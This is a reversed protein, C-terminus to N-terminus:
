PLIALSELLDHKSETVYLHRGEPSVTLAVIGPKSVDAGVTLRASARLSVAGTAVDRSYGAVVNDFASGTYVHAGDDSIAVATPRALGDLAAFVHRRVSALTLSGTGSDRAFVVLARGLSGAVYVQAGDPSVALARAGDLGEVGGLGNKEREVFTLAGTAADRAFVAVADDGFSAIYLHAGDPSMALAYPGLLGDVGDTLNKEREVFTLMGTAADRSFAAIANSPDAAVYVHLGDPSVVVARAGNMSDQVAAGNKKRQVFTLAGTAANRAFVAVADDRSSAVYVHAGDPSLAVARAGNLGDAGDIADTHVELTTLAGTTTDRQFVSLSDDNFSAVYVHAGDASLAVARGGDLGPAGGDVHFKADVLTIGGDDADPCFSSRFQRGAYAVLEQARPLEFLLLSEARCTHQRAVCTEYDALSDLTPVGYAECEPVIADLNAAHAVRLTAFPVVAESCSRDIARRLAAEGAALRAFDADCLGVSVPMCDAPDIKEAKDIAATKTTTQVCTFLRQVCHELSQAKRVLFHAAAKSTAASCRQVTKGAGGPDGIGTGDGGFDQLQSGPPLSGGAMTILERARPLEAGFALDPQRQHQRVVCTALTPVDTVAVGVEDACRDVVNAFGVGDENMLDAFGIAGCKKQIGAALALDDVGFTRALARTCRAGALALCKQDNPKTQVCRLIGNSCTDLNRLKRGTFLAGARAVAQQCKVAALAAAPDGLQQASAPAVALLLPWLAALALLAGRSRVHSPTAPTPM